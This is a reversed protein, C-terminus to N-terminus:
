IKTLRFFQYNKLIWEEIPLVIKETPQSSLPIAFNIQIENCKLQPPLHQSLIGELQVPKFKQLEGNCKKMNELEINQFTISSMKQWKQWLSLALYDFLVQLAYYLDSLLGSNFYVNRKEDKERRAQKSTKKQRRGLVDGVTWKSKQRRRQCSNCILVFLFPLNVFTLFYKPAKM